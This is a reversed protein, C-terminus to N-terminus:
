HLCAEAWLATVPFSLSSELHGHTQTWMDVVHNKKNKWAFMESPAM